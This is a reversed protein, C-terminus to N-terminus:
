REDAHAVLGALARRLVKGTATMPLESLPFYEKPRKYPALVQASRERLKEVAGL